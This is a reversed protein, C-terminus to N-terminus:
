NAAIFFASTDLLSALTKRVLLVIDNRGYKMTAICREGAPKAKPSVSPSPSVFSM